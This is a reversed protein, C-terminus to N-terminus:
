KGGKKVVEGTRGDVVQFDGVVVYKNTRIPEMYEGGPLYEYSRIEEALRKGESEAKSLTDFSDVFDGWGGVPRSSHFVFLLYRKM